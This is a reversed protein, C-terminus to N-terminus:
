KALFNAAEETIKALAAERITTRDLKESYLLNKSKAAQVNNIPQYNKKKKKRFEIRETVDSSIYFDIDYKLKFYGRVKKVVGITEHAKIVISDQKEADVLDKRATDADTKSQTIDKISKDINSKISNMEKILNQRFNSLLIVKSLLLDRSNNTSETELKNLSSLPPKNSNLLAELLKTLDTASKSLETAATEAAGDAITKAAEAAAKEATAAAVEATAAAKEAAALVGTDSKLTKEEEKTAAELRMNAIEVEKEAIEVEDEKTNADDRAKELNDYEKTITNKAINVQTVADKVDKNENKALQKEIDELITIVDNKDATLLLFASSKNRKATNYENQKKEAEAKIKKYNERNKPDNIPINEKVYVIMNKKIKRNRKIGAASRYLIVLFIILALLYYYTSDIM